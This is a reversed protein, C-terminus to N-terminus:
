GAPSTTPSPRTPSSPSGLLQPVPGQPIGTAPGFYRGYIYLNEQVSLEDDLNDQQPVVGLHARVTPGEQPRSRRGDTGQGHAGLTSGLMRMTTSKGAGNPGLLGFSEGPAIDFDIGDVARLEGYVKSLGRASIVPRVSAISRGLVSADTHREHM